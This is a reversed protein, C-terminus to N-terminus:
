WSEVYRQSPRLNNTRWVQKSPDTWVASNHNVPTARNTGANTLHSSYSEDFAIQYVGGWPDVFRGNSDVASGKTGKLEQVELFVIGRANTGRLAKLLDGDVQTPHNSGFVGVGYETEYATCSNAIQTADNRAQARRAANLASSVAPFLLAMLIGIIAIVILLEILTFAHLRPFTRPIKM